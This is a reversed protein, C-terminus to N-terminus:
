DFQTKKEKNLMSNQATICDGDSQEIYFLKNNMRGGLSYFEANM